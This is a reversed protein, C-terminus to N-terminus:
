HFSVSDDRDREEGLAGDNYRRDCCHRGRSPWGRERGEVLPLVFVTLAASSLVVGGFDLRLRRRGRTERLLPPPWSPSSRL